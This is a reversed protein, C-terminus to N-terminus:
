TQKHNQIKINHEYNLTAFRNSMQVQMTMSTLTSPLCGTPCNDYWLPAWWMGVVNVAHIVYEALTLIWISVTCMLTDRVCHMIHMSGHEIAGIAFGVGGEKTALASPVNSNGKTAGETVFLFPLNGPVPCTKWCLALVESLNSKRWKASRLMPKSALALSSREELFICIKVDTKFANGIFIMRGPIHLYPPKADNQLNASLPIEPELM